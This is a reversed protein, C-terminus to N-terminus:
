PLLKEGGYNMGKLLVEAKKVADAPLKSYDLPEAYQQGEHVMWWLLKAMEQAKTKSRNGYKQDEYVLVWTFGSIPYGDKADPNTLNIRTDAPIAGGAAATTSALSADVWSGAKNQMTARMMKNQITYALEVYGIAGPMQRVLGAVGENGKAGLGAPWSVSKGAGVKTKWDASVKALYDTFISTTGSGDSRHVVVIKKDPLALGTNIAKLKPDNWKTIKGMFIESLVSPTLRLAKVEPLNYTVTVAGLVVPIHLMKRPASALQKDEVFGDTAGFDVTEAFIQKVGGGSGISQYNIQVGKAKNYESFMKSYLPYPFTAGAGLLEEGAHAVQLTAALALGLIAFRSKM